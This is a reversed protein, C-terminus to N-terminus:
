KTLEKSQHIFTWNIQILNEYMKWFVKDHGHEQGVFVHALEHLITRALDEHHKVNYVVKIVKENFKCIGNADIGSSIIWEAWCFKWPQPLIESVFNEYHEKSLKKM